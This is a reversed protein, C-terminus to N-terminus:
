AKAFILIGNAPITLQILGNTVPLTGGGNGTNSGGYAAGDSNFVEQWGGTALRSPDTQITYSPFPENSLSAVVLLNDTGSLRTFAIVRAGNNVHIIDIAQSRVADHRGSFRIADQYFRFLNAGTGARLGSIDERHNIFDNYTYPNQAGVEEAMFFMPTGASFLSLGFAVRVRAEAYTRTAGVLPASNSACPLTRQSGADNGAEDHSENYVICNYQTSYLVGAFQDLDLPRDDGYGANKILRAMGNAMNSDGILNHYFAAFWTADFGLGGVEPLQTVMNWGSYDEAILIISPKILNLTRSWERLMKAGFLNADGVSSGDANLTNSEHIAQTLDCRFGDVHCDEVFAAASSVFIHRVMEEWFRPTYGSSGNNLYGGDPSPYSPSLGQYWYYINQEPAVSDYQWEARTANSDWHNYVVDQIVAIGRRHCERVFYKFQDRGGYDPAIDFHHSDGYGWGIGYFDSTPLLEIANVGLDTLHPLLALADGLNGMLPQGYGLAGIHLEYIVLDQFRTPVPLGPTFENAWFDATSIRVPVQGAPTTFDRAVTDLSAVLSCSKTGDLIATGGTWHAGNPDTVGRGIQSRSYLDTRYVTNGQANQIRYMYPAGEYASFNPLVNSVWVDDAGQVMPLVPKTADIGFGDDAIYGNVPDGFVVDVSQANPAWVAFKLGPQSPNGNSFDKRAGLRRGYTFYFTEVQNSGAPQLQFSRVRDTQQASQIETPIAWVNPASPTDFRVGWQFTQGVDAADFQVTAAFGPCGDIGTIATMPIESWDPTWSGSLRANRFLQAKLGTLYIFQVAITGM